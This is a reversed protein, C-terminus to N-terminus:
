KINRGDIGLPNSNLNPRNSPSNNLSAPTPPPAFSSTGGKYHSQINVDVSRLAIGNPVPASNLSIGPASTNPVSRLNLPKSQTLTANDFSRLPNNFPAKFYQANANLDQNSIHKFNYVNIPTNQAYSSFPILIALFLLNKNM